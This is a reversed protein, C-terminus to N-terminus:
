CWSTRSLLPDLAGGTAVCTTSSAEGSALNLHCCASGRSCRWFTLKNVVASCSGSGLVYHALQPLCVLGNTLLASLNQIRLSGEGLHTAQRWSFLGMQGAMQIPTAGLALVARRSSPVVRSCNKCLLSVWSM